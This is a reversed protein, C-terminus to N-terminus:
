SLARTLAPAVDALTWVAQSIGGGGRALAAAASASEATPLPCLVNLRDNGALASLPDGGVTPLCDSLLVTVRQDAAAGALQAAAARLAATPQPLGDAKEQGEPSDGTDTGGDAAPVRGSGPPGPLPAGLPWLESLLEDLVSEPSRDCGDALRIRGSLAAHAADRATCRVVGSEGRPRALGSVLVVMDIARRVSAGM